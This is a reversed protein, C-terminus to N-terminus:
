WLNWHKNASLALLVLISTLKAVLSFTDEYDLGYQQSFGCAVLRSKFRERTGDARYKVKYVKKCSVSKVDSTRPVLEWTENRMLAVVEEMPKIWEQKTHEQDSSDPEIVNSEAIVTNAYRPNPRRLRTSRRPTTAEVNENIVNTQNFVSTQWPQQNQVKIENDEVIIEKEDFNFSVKSSELEEKLQESDPPIEHNTSWWSSTENFVVNRSVYCKVAFPDCCWWEKREQHYGVFICKIDKKGDQSLSARTYVCLM